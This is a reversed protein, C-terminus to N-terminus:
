APPNAWVHIGDEHWVVGFPFGDAASQEGGPDLHFLPYESGTADHYIVAGDATIDGGNADESVDDGDLTAENTSTTTLTPNPIAAGGEPWGFGHVEDAVIASINTHTPDLTHGSLLMVKLDAIDVDGAAFLRRTHNYPTVTVSM